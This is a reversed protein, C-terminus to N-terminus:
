GDEDEVLVPLETLLQQRTEEADAATHADTGLWHYLLPLM